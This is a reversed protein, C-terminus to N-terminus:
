SARLFVQVPIKVESAHPHDTKLIITEDIRTGSPMGPPVTLTFLYQTADGTSSQPDIRVDLKEPKKEVTFKTAKQGRVWFTLTESGGEKAPLLLRVHDPSFRIPGEVKGALTFKVEPRKPHDTEIVMEEHFSGIPAGPKIKVMVRVGKDVKMAKAEDATLSDVSTTFLEPNVKVATVKLDPRDFSALGLFRPTSTENGVTQFDLRAEAPMTVIPPHCEGDITFVITEHEPDNGVLVTATQHFHSWTKTNWSVVMPFTQGPELTITQGKPISGNTCSCSTGGTLPDTSLTLTGSGKNVISWEHKGETAQAMVGFNYIADGGEVSALGPPGSPVETKVAVTPVVTTSSDPILYTAGVTAMAAVAVVAVSFIVWRLM